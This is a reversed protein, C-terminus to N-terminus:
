GSAWAAQTAVYADLSPKTSVPALSRRSLEVRMAYQRTTRDAARPSFRGAPPRVMDRYSSRLADIGDINAVIKPLERLPVDGDGRIARTLFEFAEGHKQDAMGVMYRDRLTALGDRQQTMTLAIAQRLVLMRGTDDLDGPKGDALHRGLVEALDAWRGDDWLLEARVQTSVDDDLDALRALAEDVQDLAALARADLHRRQAALVEPLEIAEAETAALASRAADPDDNLLHVVALRAGTRARDAGYLAEIQEELLSAAEDLLDIAVLQRALSEAIRGGVAGPPALAGFEYYLGLATLPTMKDAGGKLFLDNFVQQMASQVAPTESANPFGEVADRMTQLANLYDQEERYLEGLRRLLIQEFSDGRWTHRLAELKEIAEGRGMRGLRLLLEIRAFEARARVPRHASVSLEEFIALAEEPEGLEQRISAQVLRAEGQVAPPATDAGLVDAIRGARHLNGVAIAAHAALLGFRAKLDEPLRHYAPQSIAFASDAAEWEGRGAAVVARWLAIDEADDLLPSELDGSAENIRNLLLLTAGRLAVFDANAGAEDDDAAVRDLVGIADAAMGHAVYLRALDIRPDTRAALPAQVVRNQLYQRAQAMNGLDARKWAEFPYLVPPGDLRDDVQTHNDLDDQSSMVLSGRTTIEIGEVGAEVVVDDSHPLIASGQATALLSFQVFRRPESVSAGPEALPIVVLSDGVVPDDFALTSGPESLALVVRGGGAADPERRVNLSALPAVDAAENSLEVLWTNGSRAVRPALPQALGFRLVTAGPMEIQEASRVLATMVNSAGLSGLRVRRAVDFVIWLDLGRAFVAAGVRREWGFRLRAGGDIAETSVALIPVGDNEIMEWAPRPMDTPSATQAAAPAAREAPGDTPGAATPANPDPGSGGAATEGAVTAGDNETPAGDPTAWSPRVVTQYGAPDLIDIVVRTGKQFHRIRASDPITFQLTLAEVSPDVSIGLFRRPLMDRLAAEDLAVGAPFRVTVSDRDRVVDYEIALPWKFILRSFGDFDRAEIPLPLPEAPAIAATETESAPTDQEADAALPPDVAVPPPTAPREAAVPAPKPINTAEAAASPEEAAPQQNSAQDAPPAVGPPTDLDLLDIVAMNGLPFSRIRTEAALEISVSQGDPSLTAGVIRGDLANRLRATDFSAPRAFRVTIATGNREVHFAPLRRWDFVIRAFDDHLGTRVNVEDAWADRAQAGVFVLLLGVSLAFGARRASHWM